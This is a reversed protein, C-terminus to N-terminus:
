KGYVDRIRRVNRVTMGFARATDRQSAGRALSDLVAAHRARQRVKELRPIELDCGGMNSALAAANEMGILACLGSNPQPHLPIRLRIGGYADIIPFVASLPVFHLLDRLSAPLAARLIHEPINQWAPNQADTM